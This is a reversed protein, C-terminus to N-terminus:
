VVSHVLDIQCYTCLKIANCSWKLELHIQRRKCNKKEEKKRAKEKFMDCLIKLTFNKKTKKKSRYWICVHKRLYMKVFYNICYKGM